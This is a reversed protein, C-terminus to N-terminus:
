MTVSLSLSNVSSTIQCGHKDVKMYQLRPLDPLLFANELGWEGFSVCFIYNYTM